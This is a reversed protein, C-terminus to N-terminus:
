SVWRSLAPVLARAFNRAARDAAEEDDLVPAIIRVLAGDTRRLRLADILLYAKNAYESAVARGRGHFWYLVIQREGRRQVVYRNVAFSWGDWELRPRSHSVPQWGNGPLCNQPSHISDGEEQRGYHGVYLGLASREEPQVYVRNVYGDAGLVALTEEDFPPADMGRWDGLELPFTALPAAPSVVQIARHATAAKMAVLVFLVALLRVSTSRTM